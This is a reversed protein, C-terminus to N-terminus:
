EEPKWTGDEKLVLFFTNYFYYIHKAFCEFLVSTYKFLVTIHRTGARKGLDKESFKIQLLYSGCDNNAQPTTGLYKRPKKRADYQKAVTTKKNLSMSYVDEVDSCKIESM